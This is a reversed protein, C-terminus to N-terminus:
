WCTIGAASGSGGFRATSRQVRARPDRRTPRNRKHRRRCDQHHSRGSSSLGPNDGDSAGARRQRGLLCGFRGPRERPLGRVGVGAEWGAGGSVDVNDGVIPTTPSAAGTGAPLDECSSSQVLITSSVSYQGDSVTYVVSGVYTNPVATASLGDSGSLALIPLGSFSTVTLEDGDPDFDNGLIDDLDFQDSCGSMVLVDPLPVPPRNARTLNWQITETGTVGPSSTTVSCSGTLNKANTFDGYYGLTTASPGSCFSTGYTPTVSFDANATESFCDGVTLVTTTTGTLPVGARYLIEVGGGAPLLAVDFWGPKVASADRTIEILSDVPFGDCVGNGTQASHYEDSQSVTASCARGDDIPRSSFLSNQQAESTLNGSNVSTVRQWTVQGYWECGDAPDTPAPLPPAAATVVTVAAVQGGMLCLAVLLQPGLLETRHKRQGRM